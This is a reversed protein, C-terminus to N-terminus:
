ERGIEILNYYNRNIEDRDRCDMDSVIDQMAKFAADVGRKADVYTMTKFTAEQFAITMSEILKTYDLTM